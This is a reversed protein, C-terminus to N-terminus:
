FSLTGGCLNQQVRIGSGLDAIFRDLIETYFPRYSQLYFGTVM